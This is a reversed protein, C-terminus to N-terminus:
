EPVVLDGVTRRSPHQDRIRQLTAADSQPDALFLSELEQYLTTSTQGPTKLGGITMSPDNGREPEEPTLLGGHTRRLESVLELPQSATNIDVVSEADRHPYQKRQKRETLMDFLATELEPFKDLLDSLNAM